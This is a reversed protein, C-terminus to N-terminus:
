PLVICEACKNKILLESQDVWEVMTGINRNSQDFLPTLTLKFNLDGISVSSEMTSKLEALVHRQHSPNKHFQDINQGVLNDASFTPLIAQLKKENDKLLKKVAENAYIINRDADAMMICCTTANLAQENRQSQKADTASTFEDLWTMVGM